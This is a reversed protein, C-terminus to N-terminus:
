TAFISKFESPTPVVDDVNWAGSSMRDNILGTLEHYWTGLGYIGETNVLQQIYSSVFTSYVASMADFKAMRQIIVTQQDLLYNAADTNAKLLRGQAQQLARQRDNQTNTVEIQKQQTNVIVSQFSSPFVVETLQFNQLSVGIELLDTTLDQTMRQDIEQRNYVYSDVAFKAASTRISDKALKQVVDEYAEEGWDLLLKLTVDLQKNLKYQLSVGLNLRMGDLTRVVYESANLTHAIVQQPFKIFRSSPGIFYTGPEYLQTKDIQKTYTNYRIGFETAELTRFSVSILVIVTIIISCGFSGCGIWWAKKGM